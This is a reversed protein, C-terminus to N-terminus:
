RLAYPIELEGSTFTTGLAERESAADREVELVTIAMDMRACVVDLGAAATGYFGKEVDSAAEKMYELTPLSAESQAQRLRLRQRDM